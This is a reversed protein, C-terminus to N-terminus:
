ACESLGLLVRVNSLPLSLLASTTGPDIAPTGFCAPLSTKPQSEVTYSYVFTSRANMDHNDNAVGSLSAM